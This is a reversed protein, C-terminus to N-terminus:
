DRSTLKLIIDYMKIWLPVSMNWEIQQILKKDLISREYSESVKSLTEISRQPASCCLQQPPVQARIWHKLFIHSSRIIVQFNHSHWEPLRWHHPPILSSVKGLTEHPGRFCPPCWLGCKKNWSWQLELQSWCCFPRTRLCSCLCPKM